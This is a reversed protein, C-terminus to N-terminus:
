VPSHDIQENCFTYDNEYVIIKLSDVGQVLQLNAMVNGFRGISIMRSVSIRETTKLSIKSNQFVELRFEQGRDEIMVLQCGNNATSLNWDGATNTLDTSRGFTNLFIDAM